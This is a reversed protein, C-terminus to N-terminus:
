FLKQALEPNSTLKTTTLFKLPLLAQQNRPTELLQAILKVLGVMHQDLDYIKNRDIDQTTEVFDLFAGISKQAEGFVCLITQVGDKDVLVYASGADGLVRRHKFTGHLGLQNEAVYDIWDSPVSSLPENIWDLLQIFPDLMLDGNIFPGTQDQSLVAKEIERCSRYINLLQSLHNTAIALLYETPFEFDQDGRVIITNM